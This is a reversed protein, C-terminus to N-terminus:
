ESPGSLLPTLSFIDQTSTSLNVIHTHTKFLISFFLPNFYLFYILLTIKKYKKILFPFLILPKFLM